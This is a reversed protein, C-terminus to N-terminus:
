ARVGVRANRVYHCKEPLYGVKLAETTSMFESNTGESASFKPWHESQENAVLNRTEEPSEVTLIHLIPRYTLEPQGDYCPSEYCAAHFFAM